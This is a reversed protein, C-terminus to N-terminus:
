TGFLCAYKYAEAILEQYDLKGTVEIYIPDKQPPGDENKVAIIEIDATFKNPLEEQILKLIDGTVIDGRFKFDAFNVVVKAKHPSAGLSVENESGAGEGVQTIISQIIKKESDPQNADQDLYPKLIRNLEQEVELATQNTTEIDTGIPHSIFINVFNPQNVPFFEVKPQFVGVLVFSFILLVFTGVV